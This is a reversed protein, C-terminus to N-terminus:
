HLTRRFSAATLRKAAAGRMEEAVDLLNEALALLELQIWAPEGDAMDLCTQALRFYDSATQM